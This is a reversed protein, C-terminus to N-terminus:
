FPTKQEFAREVGPEKLKVKEQIVTELAFIAKGV